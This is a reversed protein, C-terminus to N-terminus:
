PETTDTQMTDPEMETTDVAASDSSPTPSVTTDSPPVALGPVGGEMGSAAEDEPGMEDAPAEAAGTGTAAIVVSGTKTHLEVSAAGDGLQASYQGGANRPTFHQETLELGRTRIAGVETEATLQTSADPPLRLTVDGNVTRLTVTTDPLSALQVDVNGNKIEVTVSAAAGRISVPGHEHTVTLPGEVGAISVPGTTRDLTLAADRPVTGTVDVAAYAGGNRELTYTYSKESGSETIDLDDLVSRATEADKGRGHRVFQLQATTEETGRLEVTGRIGEIVLPRGSPSVARTLTDVAEVSGLRLVGEETRNVDSTSPQECASLGGVLLMALMSSALLRISRM